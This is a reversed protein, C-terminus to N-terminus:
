SPYDYVEIKALPVINRPTVHLVVFPDIFSIHNIMIIAPGQSPVNEMGEVRDLKALLTFGGWKMLFRLVRRRTAYRAHNYGGKLTHNQELGDAVMEYELDMDKLYVGRYEPPLQEALTLMIQQTGRDVAKRWNGTQDLYFPKGVTLSIEPRSLRKLKSYVNRNETGHIDGTFIPAGSKLALYAAGPTGEELAGSVSERGEPAIAVARGEALGDLVAHLARRDPRGRHVWIVGYTEMLWGLVPFDYFDAKSVVEVPRAAFVLGIVLDADGLHNSVVLVPGDAPMNEFGTGHVRTLLHVLLRLFRVIIWRAARRWRTLPPLRTIEPRVRPTVPKPSASDPKPMTQDLCTTQTAPLLQHKQRTKSGPTYVM